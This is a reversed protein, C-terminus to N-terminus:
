ASEDERADLRAAKAMESKEYQELALVQLSAAKVPDREALALQQAQKLHYEPRPMEKTGWGSEVVEAHEGAEARRSVEAFLGHVVVSV